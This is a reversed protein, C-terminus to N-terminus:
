ASVVCLFVSVVHVCVEVLQKIALDQETNLKEQPWDSLFVVRKKGVSVSRPMDSAAGTLLGPTTPRDDQLGGADLEESDVFLQEESPQPAPPILSEGRVNMVDALTVPKDTYAM